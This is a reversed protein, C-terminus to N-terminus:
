PTITLIRRPNAVTITEIISETVGAVRLRPLFADALYTYGNGGYHKLQQNHCVDQSLLIRDEHGRAVLELLLEVIRTEDVREQPTFSM